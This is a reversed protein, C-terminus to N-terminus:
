IISLLEKLNNGFAKYGAFQINHNYCLLTLSLFYM